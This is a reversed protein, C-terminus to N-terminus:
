VSFDTASPCQLEITLWHSPAMSAYEM